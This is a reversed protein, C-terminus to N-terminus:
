KAVPLTLTFVAGGGPRDTIAISGHHRDLIQRVIALGLGTGGHERSRSTELRYFPEFVLERETAPIGPGRDAIAIRAIDGETTVTVDARQGYAIANGVLNELVRVLATEGIALSVAEGAWTMEPRDEAMRDLLPALATRGGDAASSASAFELAEEVLSQMAEVDAIAKDRTPSPDLLELRLRLKTVQTRLDHSMGALILARNRILAAVQHQMRNTAAILARLDPAGEEELDRPVASKAFAELSSALATLPRTERLVFFVAVALVLLGFIGGAFAVINGYVYAEIDNDPDIVLFRGDDLEITIRIQRGFLRVLPGRRDDVSAINSVEIRDLAIGEQAIRREISSASWALLPGGPDPQPARNVVDINFRVAQLFELALQQRRPPMREFRNVLLAIQRAYAPRISGITFGDDRSVQVAITILQLVFMAGVVILVLRLSLSLRRM